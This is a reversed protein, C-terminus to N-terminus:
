YRPGDSSGSRTQNGGILAIGVNALANVIAKAQRGDSLKGAESARVVAKCIDVLVKTTDQASIWGWPISFLLTKSLKAYSITMPDLRGTKMFANGGESKLGMAKAMGRKDEAM